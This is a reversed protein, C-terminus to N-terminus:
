PSLPSLREELVTPKGITGKLYELMLEEVMQERTTNAFSVQEDSEFKSIKGMRIASSRLAQQLAAYKKTLDGAPMNSLRQYVSVMQDPAPLRPSELVVRCDRAFRELGRLIHSTKVFNIGSWGASLWHFVGARVMTPATSSEVYVVVSFYDYIYSKVWGLGARTLGPEGSYYYAWDSDDGLIFGKKGVDSKNIQKSLSVLVQRGKHNLLILTRKLDYEHYVGTNLDPTDSERQRAHIVVPAGAPPVPKWSNPLKQSEDRPSTWPSYRVSSPRTIVHPILPNYSYDIFRPLTIKTDFEYYAGTCERSKPLSYERDQKSSLVYDVLTAVAREDLGAKPDICFQVLQMAADNIPSSIDTLSFAVVPQYLIILLLGLAIYGLMRRFYAHRKITPFEGKVGFLM